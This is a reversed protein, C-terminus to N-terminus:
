SASIEQVHSEQQCEWLAENAIKEMHVHEPPKYSSKCNDCMAFPVGYQGKLEGSICLFRYMRIRNAKLYRNGPNPRHRNIQTPL